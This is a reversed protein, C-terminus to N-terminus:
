RSYYEVVLSIECQILIDERKPIQALKFSFNAKDVEIYSPATSNRMAELIFEIKRSKEKISIVDNLKVNYSPIDCKKGNVLIHGHQVYQRAAYITRAFGAKKVVSDLRTELLQLLLDATNGELRTAKKYYNGMQKESIHYQLRLRQKELLQKGYDSFKQFKKRKGHQGPLTPKHDMIKVAKPTMAIGLKRSLKVKPGTYNM